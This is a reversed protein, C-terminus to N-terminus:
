PMFRWTMDNTAGCQEASSYRELEVVVLGEIRRADRTADHCTDRPVRHLTVAM